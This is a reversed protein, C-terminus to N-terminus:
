KGEEPEVWDSGTRGLMAVGPHELLENNENAYLTLFM